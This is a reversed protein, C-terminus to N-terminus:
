GQGAVSQIQGRSVYAYLTSTKVGLLKAAARASLFAEPSDGPEDSM